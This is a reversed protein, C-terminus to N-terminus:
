CAPYSFTVRTINEWDTEVYEQIIFQTILDDGNYSILSRDEPLHESGDWFYSIIESITPGTYFYATLGSTDWTTDVSNWKEDVQHELLDAASYTYITRSVNEWSTDEEDSLQFLDDRLQNPISFSSVTKRGGM